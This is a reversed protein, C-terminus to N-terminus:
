DWNFLEKYNKIKNIWNEISNQSNEDFDFLENDIINLKDFPTIIIDTFLELFEGNIIDEAYEKIASYRSFKKKYLWFDLYKMGVKNSFLSDVVGTTM